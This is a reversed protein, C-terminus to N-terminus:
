ANKLEKNIVRTVNAIVIAAVIVLFAIIFTSPVVKSTQFNSVNSDGNAATTTEIITSERIPEVPLVDLFM